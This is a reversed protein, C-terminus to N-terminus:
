WTHCSFRTEMHTPAPFSSIYIKLALLFIISRLHRWVPFPRICPGYDRAPSCTILYVDLFFVKNHNTPGLCLRIYFVNIQMCACLFSTSNACLCWHMSLLGLTSCDLVWSGKLAWFILCFPSANFGPRFLPWLFFFAFICKLIRHILLKHPSFGPTWGM